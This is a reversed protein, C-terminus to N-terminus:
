EGESKETPTFIEYWAGCKDCAWYSVIGDGDAGVDEFSSDGDWRLVEGCNFCLHHEQGQKIEKLPCDELRKREGWVVMCSQNLLICEDVDDHFACQWCHKPMETGKIYVGM